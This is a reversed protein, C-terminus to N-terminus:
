INKEAVKTLCEFFVRYTQGNRGELRKIIEPLNSLETPSITLDMSMSFAQMEDFQSGGIMIQIVIIKRRVSGSLRTIYGMIERLAPSPEPGSQHLIIMDYQHFRFRNAMEQVNTVHRYEYGSQKLHKEIEHRADFDPCFILATKTGEAFYEMADKMSDMDEDERVHIPKSDVEGEPATASAATPDDQKQTHDTHGASSERSTKIKGSCNPCKIIVDGHDPLKNSDIVYRTGCNDCIIEM